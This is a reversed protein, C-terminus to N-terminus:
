RRGGHVDLVRPDRQVDLHVTVIERRRQQHHVPDRHAPPRPLPEHGVEDVAEPHQAEVEATV